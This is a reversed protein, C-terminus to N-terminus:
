SQPGTPRKWIDFQFLHWSAGVEVVSVFSGREVDGIVNEAAIVEGTPEWAPGTARVMAMIEVNSSKGRDWREVTRGFKVEGSM